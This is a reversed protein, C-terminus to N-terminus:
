RAGCMFDPRLGYVTLPPGQDERRAERQVPNAVTGFRQHTHVGLCLCGADYLLWPLFVITTPPQLTSQVSKGPANMISNRMEPVGGSDSWRGRLYPGYGGSNVSEPATRNRAEKIGGM